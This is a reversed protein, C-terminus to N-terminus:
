KETQCNPAFQKTDVGGHSLREGYRRQCLMNTPRLHTGCRANPHMRSGQWLKQGPLNLLGLAQKLPMTSTVIQIPRTATKWVSAEGEFAIRCGKRAADFLSPIVTNKSIYETIDEKTYYAGMEKQSTYKENQNIYKEFIYGLVDPNIENDNRLPREDLHWQYKEFFNFLEKLHLTLLRFGKGNWSM